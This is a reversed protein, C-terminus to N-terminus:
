KQLRRLEALHSQITPLTERAYRRLDQDEGGQAQASYLAVAHEQTSIMEETWIADFDASATGSPPAAAGQLAPLPWRKEEAIRAMRATADAHDRVLAEAVRKLDPDSLQALAQHAASLDERARETAIALFSIDDIPKGLDGGGTPQSADVTSSQSAPLDAAALPVLASSGATLNEALNEAIPLSVMAAVPDPLPQAPGTTALSVALAPCTALLAGSVITGTVWRTVRKM